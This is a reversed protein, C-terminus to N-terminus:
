VDNRAEWADRRQTAPDSLMARDYTLLVTRGAHSTWRSKEVKVGMKANDIFDEVKRLGSSVQMRDAKTMGEILPRYLALISDANEGVTNGSKCDDIGPPTTRRFATAASKVRTVQNACLVAMGTEKAGEKLGEALLKTDLYQTNRFRDFHDVVFVQYGQRAAVRMLTRLERPGVQTSGDFRIRDAMWEETQMLLHTEVNERTGTPLAGWDLRAVLRPDAQLYLGALMLRMTRPDQEFPLCYVKTGRAVWQHIVNMLFTTKGNGSLALLLHYEGPSIPGVLESLSDYPYHVWTRRDQELFDKAECAQAAADSYFAEREFGRAEEPDREWDDLPAGLM